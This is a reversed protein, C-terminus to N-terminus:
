VRCSGFGVSCSFWIHIVVIGIGGDAASHVLAGVVATVHLVASQGTHLDAGVLCVGRLAFAGVALGEPDFASDEPLRVSFPFVTRKKNKDFEGNLLAFLKIKEIKKEIEVVEDNISIM